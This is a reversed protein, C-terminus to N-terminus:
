WSYTFNLTLFEKLQHYNLDPDPQVSDDFRWHLFFQISFYKNFAYDLTNEWNAEVNKYSTFFQAKSTWTLSKWFTWKLNVEVRSGISYKFKKGEEIGFKPGLYERSVYRSNFSLPSLQASLTINDKNFKPKFDMGISVNGYAPAFFRSKLTVNDGEYVNMFQTYAEVQASYYWFKAAKYGFKSTLRLLDENTKFVTHDDEESTYYGLKAELKNDWTVNEKAYNAEQNIQALLTHNSVGGKYWNSTYSSQTYKFTSKGPFKWYKPKNRVLEPADADHIQVDGTYEAIHETAEEGVSIPGTVSMLEGETLKVLEPHELYVRALTRNINNALSEEDDWQSMAVSLLSDTEANEGDPRAQFAEDYLALPMFLKFYLPNDSIEEIQAGSEAAYCRALSDLKESYKAVIASDVRVSDIATSSVAGMALPMMAVVLAFKFKRM